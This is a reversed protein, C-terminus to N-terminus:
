TAASRKVDNYFMLSTAGGFAIGLGVAEALQAEDAGARRAAAANLSVCPGCRQAVSLALSILKHERPSLAGTTAGLFARFQALGAPEPLPDTPAAVQSATSPQTACCAPEACCGAESPVPQGVTAPPEAALGEWDPSVGVLRLGGDARPEAVRGIVIASECRRRYDEVHEEPLALLLGGSTEPAALLWRLGSPLTAWDEVLTSAHESNRDAAGPAVGARALNRAGPLLPLASADLELLVGGDRAMAAAHGLLGFGTVDTCASAKSSQLAEGAVRNLAAMSAWASHQWAAEARGCRAAFGILGTGLPKTLLLLHGVVAGSRCLVEGHTALGTVAYGLWPEPGTTSHGGVLTIGAEVLAEAGGALMERLVEGPLLEQPFGCISLAADAQAGMAWIDSASNAAAIRGALRPDDCAPAMVDISLVLVRGDGLDIVAADDGAATGVLVRPDSRMPLGSLLRALESAPLKAGCGAAHALATLSPTEPGPEPREGACPCRDRLRLEDCPCPRRPDCVCHGLARSREIVARRRELEAPSRAVM